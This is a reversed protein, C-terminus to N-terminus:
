DALKFEILEEVFDLDRKSDKLEMRVIRRAAPAYWYTFDLHWNGGRSQMYGSARLKVAEFTGAAVKVQESGLVEVDLQTTGEAGNQKNQFKTKFDWKKKADLPFTLFRYGNDYSLRPTDLFTLDPTMAGAEGNFTVDVRSAGVATVVEETTQTVKGFPDRREVKWRDGVKLGPRAIPLTQALGSSAVLGLATLAIFSRRSIHM